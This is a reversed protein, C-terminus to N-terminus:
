VFQLCWLIILHSTMRMDHPRDVAQDSIWTVYDSLGHIIWFRLMCSFEYRFHVIIICEVWTHPRVNLDTTFQTVRLFIFFFCNIAFGNVIRVNTLPNYQVDSVHTMRLRITPISDFWSTRHVSRFFQSTLTSSFVFQVCGFAPPFRFFRACSLLKYYVSFFIFFLLVIRVFCRIKPQIM